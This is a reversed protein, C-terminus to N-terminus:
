DADQVAERLWEENVQLFRLLGLALDPRLRLYGPANEGPDWRDDWIAISYGPDWGGLRHAGCTVNGSATQEVILEDASVTCM